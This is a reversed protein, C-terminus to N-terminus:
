NKSKEKEDFCKICMGQCKYQKLKTCGDILCKTNTYNVNFYLRPNFPSLKAYAAKADDSTPEMFDIGQKEIKQHMQNFQQTYKNALSPALMTQELFERRTIKPYRSLKILVADFRDGFSWSLNANHNADLAQNQGRANSNGMFNEVNTRRGKGNTNGRMAISHRTRAKSYAETMATLDDEDANLLVAIDDVSVYLNPKSLEHNCFILPLMLHVGMHNPKRLPLLNMPNDLGGMSKLQLHHIDWGKTGSFELQRMIRKTRQFSLNAIKDDTWDPRAEKIYDHCTKFKNPHEPDFGLWQFYREWNDIQEQNMNERNAIYNRGTAIVDHIGGHCFTENLMDPITTDETHRLEESCNSWAYAEDIDQQSLLEKEEVGSDEAEFDSDDEEESDDGDDDSDPNGGATIGINATAAAREATRVFGRRVSVVVEEESIEEEEDSEDDSGGSSTIKKQNTKTKLVKGDMGDLAVHQILPPLKRKPFIRKSNVLFSDDDTDESDSLSTPLIAAYVSIGKALPPPHVVATVAPPINNTNSNNKPDAVVGQPPLPPSKKAFTRKSNLLFSDDDTDESDFSAARTKADVQRQPRSNGNSGNTENNTNNEKGLITM